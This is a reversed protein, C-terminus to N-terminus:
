LLRLMDVVFGNHPMMNSEEQELSLSAAAGDNWGADPVWFEGPGQVGPIHLLHLGDDGCHLGM